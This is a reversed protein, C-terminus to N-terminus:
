WSQGAERGTELSGESGHQAHLDWAAPLTTLRSVAVDGSGWTAFAVVRLGNRCCDRGVDADSRNSWATRPRGGRAPNRMPETTGRAYIGLNAMKLKTSCMSTLVRASRRSWPVCTQWTRRRDVCLLWRFRRVVGVLVRGSRCRRRGWRCARLSDADDEFSVSGYGIVWDTALVRMVRRACFPLWGLCCWAVHIGGHVLAFTAM